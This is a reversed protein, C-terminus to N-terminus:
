KLNKSLVKRMARVPAKKGTYYEFQAAGQYLLMELGPIIKAGKKKADKLLRTIPPSYVADFVIQGKHLFEAPVPTKNIRPKMGVPTANIIIDFNNVRHIESFDCYSAKFEKALKGAREADRGFVTLKAGKRTVGYAIARSAGGSGLLAVKKNKLRTMKELPIVAGQWDTNYGTLRGKDNVVTNVAKIKKAVPDIKDLFKMVAEKHPMTCTLGRIGSIRVAKVANKVEPKKIRASLFIFRNDIKLARYAANHMAPSLSHAIPDGIILCVKKLDKELVAIIKESIANLDPNKICDIVEDAYLSYLPSRLKFLKRASERDKFLPRTKDNKLRKEINKFGDKLYIIKGNKKLNRINKENMVIGGGTSIIKKDIDSLEKAVRAELPRFTKEGGKEFIENINERRSKKVILDDMEVAQFGLRKALIKSLSTKGSGMFGILVINM